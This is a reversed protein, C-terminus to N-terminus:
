IEVWNSSFQLLERWFWFCFTRVLFKLVCSCLVVVLARRVVLVVLKIREERERGRRSLGFTQKRNSRCLWRPEVMEHGGRGVVLWGCFSWPFRGRISSNGTRDTLLYSVFIFTWFTTRDITRHSAIGHVFSATLWCCRWWCACGGFFLWQVVFCSSTRKRGVIGRGRM